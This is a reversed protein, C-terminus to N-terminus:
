LASTSATTGASPKSTTASAPSTQKNLPPSSPINTNRELMQTKGGKSTHYLYLYRSISVPPLGGYGFRGVVEGDMGQAVVDGETNQEVTELGFEKALAWMRKQNTSNIWAAGHEVKGKGDARPVSYTKGGVRDRAELVLVSLNARTLECAAILGSLGAGIVVVDYHSSSM